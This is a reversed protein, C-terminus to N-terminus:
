HSGVSFLDRGQPQQENTYCPINAITTSKYQPPIAAVSPDKRYCCVDIYHPAHSPNGM